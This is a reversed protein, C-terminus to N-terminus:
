EADNVAIDSKMIEVNGKKVFAAGERMHSDSISVEARRGEGASIFNKGEFRTGAMSIEVPPYVIGPVGRNGFRIAANKLEVNILKIGTVPTTSWILWDVDNEMEVNEITINEQVPADAYPYYSHSYNDNDFHFSFAIPRHKCLKINKFHINRCGCNYCVNEDQIM